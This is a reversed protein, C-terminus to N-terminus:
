CPRSQLSPCWQPLWRSLQVPHDGYRRGLGRATEAPHLYHAIRVCGGEWPDRLDTRLLMQRDVVIALCSLTLHTGNSCM